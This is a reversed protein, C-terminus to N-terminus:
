AVAKWPAKEGRKKGWEIWPRYVARWEEIDLGLERISREAHRMHEEAIPGSKSFGVGDRQSPPAFERAPGFPALIIEEFAWAQWERDAGHGHTEIGLGYNPRRREEPTSAVWHGAEHLLWEMAGEPVYVLRLSVPSNSGIDGGCGSYTPIHSRAATKYKTLKEVIEVARRWIGPQQSGLASEATAKWLKSPIAKQLHVRKGVQTGFLGYADGAKELYARAIEPSPHITDIARVVETRYGILAAKHDPETSEHEEIGIPDCCLRDERAINDKSTIRGPFDVLLERVAESVPRPYEEGWSRLDLEPKIGLPRAYKELAVCAETVDLFLPSGPLEIDDETRWFYRDDWESDEADPSSIKRHAFNLIYRIKM